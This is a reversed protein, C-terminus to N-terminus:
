LVLARRGKRVVTSALYGSLTLSGNGGAARLQTGFIIQLEKELRSSGYRAFLIEMCDDEIIFGKHLDDFTLFDHLNRYYTLQFEEWDIYGDGKEDVEWILNEIRRKSMSSELDNLISEIDKLSITQETDDFLQLREELAELNLNELSDADIDDAGKDIDSFSDQDQNSEDKHVQKQQQNQKELNIQSLFTTPPNRETRKLQIMRMLEMRKAFGALYDYSKRLMREDHPNFEVTQGTSLKRTILAM